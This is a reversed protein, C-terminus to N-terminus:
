FSSVCLGQVVYNVVHKLINLQNPEDHQKRFSEISPCALVIKIVEEGQGGSATELYKLLDVASAYDPFAVDITSAATSCTDYQEDSFHQLRM